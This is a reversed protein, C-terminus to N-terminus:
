LLNPARCTDATFPGERTSIYISGGKLQLSAIENVYVKSSIPWPSSSPEIKCEVPENWTFIVENVQNTRIIEFIEIKTKDHRWKEAASM